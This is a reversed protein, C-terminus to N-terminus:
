LKWKIGGIIAYYGYPEEIIKYADASTYYVFSNVRQMHRVRLSFAIHRNIQFILNGELKFDIDEPTNYIVFANNETYNRLNGITAEIEFWLNNMLKMGIMQHFIINSNEPRKMWFLGTQTYFNLNGFPYTYALLGAQFYSEGDFDGKAACAELGFLDFDRRISLGVVSTNESIKATDALVLNLSDVYTDERLQYKLGILHWAPTIQWGNGLALSLNGYYENQGTRYSFDPWPMKLYDIEQKMTVDVRGYGQYVSIAPSIRLRLGGYFYFLNQYSYNKSYISDTGRLQNNRNEITENSYIGPGSEIYIEELFRPWGIELTEKHEASLNRLQLTADGQRGSFLYSYYLYENATADNPFLRRANEFYRIAKRYNAKNYWAIGVRMQMYYNDVGFEIAKKGAVILEDWQQSLYLSYTLSDAKSIEASSQAHAKSSSTVMLIFVALVVPLKRFSPRLIITKCVKM